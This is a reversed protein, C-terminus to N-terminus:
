STRGPSQTKGRWIDLCRRLAIAPPHIEFGLAGTIYIEVAQPVGGTYTSGFEVLISNRVAETTRQAAALDMFPGVIITTDGCSLTGVAAMGRASATGTMWIIGVALVAATIIRSNIM